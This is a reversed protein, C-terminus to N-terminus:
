RITHKREHNSNLRMFHGFQRYRIHDSDYEITDLFQKTFELRSDALCFDLYSGTRPYTAEKSCYLKTRYQISHTNLWSYLSNGRPDNETNHWSRHKANFDGMIVFYNDLQDLKLKEFIKALEGIFESKHNHSGYLSVFSLKTNGNLSIVITTTEICKFNEKILSNVIKFNIKRRVMIATGRKTDSKNNRIVKYNKLELKHTDLLNTESLMIVDPNENDM